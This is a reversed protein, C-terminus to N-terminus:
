LCGRTMMSLLSYSVVIGLVYQSIYRLVLARNELVTAISVVITGAPRHHELRSLITGCLVPLTNNCTQLNWIPDIHVFHWREVLLRTTNQDQDPDVKM